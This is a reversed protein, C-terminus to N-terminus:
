SGMRMWTQSTRLKKTEASTTSRTAPALSDVETGERNNSSSRMPGALNSGPTVEPGGVAATEQTAQDRPSTVISDNQSNMNPKCHREAM